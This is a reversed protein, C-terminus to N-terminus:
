EREPELTGPDEGIQAPLEDDPEAAKRRVIEEDPQRRDDTREDPRQDRKRPM